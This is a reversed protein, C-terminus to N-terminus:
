SPKEDYKDNINNLLCDCASCYTDFENKISVIDFFCKTILTVTRIMTLFLIKETEFVINLRLVRFIGFVERTGREAKTM